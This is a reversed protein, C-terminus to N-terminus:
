MINLLFFMGEFDLILAKRLFNLKEQIKYQDAFSYILKNKM